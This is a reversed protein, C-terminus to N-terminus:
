GMGLTAVEMGAPSPLEKTMIGVKEKVPDTCGTETKSHSCSIAFVLFGLVIVLRSYKLLTKLNTGSRSIMGYIIVM